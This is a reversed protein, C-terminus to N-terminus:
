SQGEELGIFMLEPGNDTQVVQGRVRDNVECPVSDDVLARIVPGTDLEVEGITYPTPYTAHLNVVAFSHLRGLPPITAPTLAAGHAGCAPCGFSQPPFLFTECGSCRLGNLVVSDGLQSWLEGTNRPMGNVMWHETRLGSTGVLTNSVSLELLQYLYVTLKKAQYQWIQIFGYIRPFAM